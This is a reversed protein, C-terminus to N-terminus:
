HNVGRERSKKLVFDAIAQNMYLKKDGYQTCLAMYADYLDERIYVTMKKYGENKGGPEMAKQEELQKAIEAFNPEGDNEHTLQSVLGPADDAGTKAAAEEKERQMRALKEAVTEKPNTM